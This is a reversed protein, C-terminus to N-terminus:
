LFDTEVFINFFKVFVNVFIYLNFINLKYVIIVVAGTPISIPTNKPAEQILDIQM